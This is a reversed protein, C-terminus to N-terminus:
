KSLRDADEKSLIKFLKMGNQEAKAAKKGNKMTVITVEGDQIDV